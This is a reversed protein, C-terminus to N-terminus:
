FTKRYIERWEHGVKEDEGWTDLKEVFDGRTWPWRKLLFLQLFVGLWGYNLKIEEGKEGKEEEKEEEKEEVMAVKQPLFAALLRRM